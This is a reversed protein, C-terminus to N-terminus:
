SFTCDSVFDWELVSAPFVLNIILYRYTSFMDYALHAAIEWYIAM